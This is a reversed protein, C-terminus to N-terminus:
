RPALVGLRRASCGSRDLAPCARFGLESDLCIRVERMLGEECTVALMDPALDPNVAIFAQEIAQPGARFPMVMEAFARPVQVRAFARRTLDFYAQPALGSCSGHKRWQHRVLERSPMIDLMAEEVQLPLAQKASCFNLHTGGPGQPWLGHVIFRYPEGALCQRPAADEGRLHCYAPSWSLALVYHDPEEAQLPAVLALWLVLWLAPSAGPLRHRM